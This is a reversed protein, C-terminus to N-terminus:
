GAGEVERLGRADLQGQSLSDAHEGHASGCGSHPSEVLSRALGFPDNILTYADGHWLYLFDHYQGTLPADLLEDSEPLVVGRLAGSCEILKRARLVRYAHVTDEISLGSFKLSYKVLECVAKHPSSMDVPEAHTIMSDGTVAHWDARLQSIEGSYQDVGWRIPASGKPLAAILHIHPHWGTQESHTFEFAWVLGKARSLEVYRGKGRLHDRAAQRLAKFSKVLHAFREALDPGNKVTLTVFHYDFQDALHTLKEHVVAGQRSARRHACNPCLLHLQCFKAGSLVREDQEPYWRWNLHNACRFLRHALGDTAGGALHRGTANTRRKRSGYGEVDQRLGNIGRSAGTDGGLEPPKAKRPGPPRPM